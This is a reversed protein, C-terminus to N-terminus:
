PRPGMFVTQYLVFKFMLYLRLFSFYLLIDNIEYEIETGWDMVFEKYTIGDLFPNPSISLILMEFVMSRWIGTNKLTDYITFRKITISWKLWLDYRIYISIILLVTCMMNCFLAMRNVTDFQQGILRKEYNIISLTLGVSSYFTSCFEAVM